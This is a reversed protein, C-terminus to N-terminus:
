EKEEKQEQLLSDYAKKLMQYQDESIVRCDVKPSANLYGLKILNSGAKVLKPEIFDKETKM